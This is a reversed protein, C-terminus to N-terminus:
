TNLLIQLFQQDPIQATYSKKSGQFLYNGIELKKLNACEYFMDDPVIERKLTLVLETEILELFHVVSSLPGCQM